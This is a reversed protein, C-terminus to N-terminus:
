PFCESNSMNTGLAPGATTCPNLRKVIIQRALRQDTEGLYRGDSKRPKREISPITSQPSCATKKPRPGKPGPPGIQSAQESAQRQLRCARKGDASKALRSQRSFNILQSLAGVSKCTTMQPSIRGEQLEAATAVASSKVHDM